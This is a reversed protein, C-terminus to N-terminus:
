IFVLYSRSGYAIANWPKVEVSLYARRGISFVFIVVFFHGKTRSDHIGMCFPFENSCWQNLYTHFNKIRIPYIIYWRPWSMNQANSIITRIIFAQESINSLQKCRQYEYYMATPLSVNLFTLFRKDDTKKRGVWHFAYLLQLSLGEFRISLYYRYRCSRCSLSNM